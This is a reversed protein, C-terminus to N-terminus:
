DTFDVPKPGYGWDGEFWRKKPPDRHPPNTADIQEHMTKFYKAIVKPAWRTGDACFWGLHGGSTTSVTHTWPNKSLATYPVQGNCCIPDDEACLVLSPTRIHRLRNASSAYRYYDDGSDFGFAPGNLTDDYEYVTTYHPGKPGWNSKYVERETLVKGLHNTLRCLNAGMTKTYVNRGMWSQGLAFNSVTLDWPNCVISAAAIQTKDSEQGLYNAVISAGLSYGVLYIQRQPQTSKIHDVFRRLDDTWGANFLYPTNIPSRNCGRSTIVCYDFDDSISQLASMSARVYSENSGGTLGHVSLMLPRTNTPDDLKKIEEPRLYRTRSPYKPLNELPAYDKIEDWNDGKPVVYDVSVYAGDFTFVRRGYYQPDDKILPLSALYTQFHGNYYFPKVWYWYNERAEEIQNVVKDLSVKGGGFANLEIPKLAKHEHVYSWPYM